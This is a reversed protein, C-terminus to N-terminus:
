MTARFPPEFPWGSFETAAVPVFPSLELAEEESDVFGGVGTCAAEGAGAGTLRALVEGADLGAATATGEAGGEVGAGAAPDGAGAASIAGVGVGM